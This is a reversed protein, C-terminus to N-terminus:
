YGAAVGTVPPKRTGIGRRVNTGSVIHVGVWYGNYAGAENASLEKVQQGLSRLTNLLKRDFQGQEVQAAPPTVSFEPGLFAPQEVAAQPDMDFDLVNSLVQLM